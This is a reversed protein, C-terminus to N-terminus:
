TARHATKRHLGVEHEQLRDLCFDLAVTLGPLAPPPAIACEEFSILWANIHHLPDPSAAVVSDYIGNGTARRRLICGVNFSIITAHKPKKKGLAAHWRLAARTCAVLAARDCQVGRLRTCVEVCLWAVDGGVVMSKAVVDDRIIRLAATHEWSIELAGPAKPTRSDIRRRIVEIIMLATLLVANGIAEGFYPRTTSFLDDATVTHMAFYFKLPM